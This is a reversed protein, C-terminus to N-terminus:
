LETSANDQQKTHQQHPMREQVDITTDPYASQSYQSYQSYHSYQTNQTYQSYQTDKGKRIGDVTLPLDRDNRTPNKRGKVTSLSAFSISFISYVLTVLSLLM